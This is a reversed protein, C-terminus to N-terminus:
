LREITKHEHNTVVINAVVGVGAVDAVGSCRVVLRYGCRCCVHYIHYSINLTSTDIALM